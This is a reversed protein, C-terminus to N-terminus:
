IETDILKPLHNMSEVNLKDKFIQMSQVIENDIEELSQLGEM